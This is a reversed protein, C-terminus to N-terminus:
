CFLFLLHMNQKNLQFFIWAKTSIQLSFIDLGRVNVPTQGIAHQAFGVGQTSARNAKVM